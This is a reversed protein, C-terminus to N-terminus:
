IPPRVFHARVDVVGETDLDVRYQVSAPDIDPRQGQRDPMVAIIEGNTGHHLHEPHTEDPIDIRVRDGVEYPAGRVQDSMPRGEPGIGILNLGVTM